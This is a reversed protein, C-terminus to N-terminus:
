MDVIEDACVSVIRVKGRFTYRGFKRVVSCGVLELGNRRWVM